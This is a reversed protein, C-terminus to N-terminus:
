PPGLTRLSIGLGALDLGKTKLATSISAASTALNVFRNPFGPLAVDSRIHIGILKGDSLLLPAGSCGSFAAAKHFLNGDQQALIQDLDPQMVGTSETPEQFQVIATLAQVGGLGFYTAIFVGQKADVASDIAQLSPELPVFQAPLDSQLKILAWDGQNYSHGSESQTGDGSHIMSGVDFGLDIRVTGVPFPDNPRLTSFDLGFIVCYNRAFEPNDVAHHATLIWGQGVVTATAEAHLRAQNLTNVFKPLIVGISHRYDPDVLATNRQAATTFPPRNHREGVLCRLANPSVRKFQAFTKVHSGLPQPLPLPLKFNGLPPRPLEETWDTLQKLLHHASPTTQLWHAITHVSVVEFQNNFHPSRITIGLLLGTSSQAVAGGSFGEGVENSALGIFHSPAKLEQVTARLSRKLWTTKPHGIVDIEGGVAPWELLPMAIPVDDDPPLRDFRDAFLRIFCIDLDDCIVVGSFDDGIDAAYTRRQTAAKAGDGVWLDFSIQRKIADSPSMVVHKATLLWNRHVLVGSGTSTENYLAATYRAALM